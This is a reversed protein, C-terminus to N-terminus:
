ELYENFLKSLYKTVLRYLFIPDLTIITPGKYEWTEVYDFTPVPETVNIRQRIEEPLPGSFMPIRASHVFNNRMSYLHDTFRRLSQNMIEENKIMPCEAKWFTIKCSSYNKFFCTEKNQYCYPAFIDDDHRIEIKPILEIKEDPTLSEFFKRFNKTIGHINKYRDYAQLCTIKNLKEKNEKYWEPFSKYEIKRTLLEIISTLLILQFGALFDDFGIKKCAYIVQSIRLPITRRYDDFRSFATWVKRFEDITEFVDEMIPFYEDVFGEIGERKSSM